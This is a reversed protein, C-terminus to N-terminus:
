EDKTGREAVSRVLTDLVVGADPPQESGTMDMERVEKHM